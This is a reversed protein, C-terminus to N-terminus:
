LDIEVYHTDSLQEPIGNVRIVLPAIYQVTFETRYGPVDLRIAAQRLCMMPYLLFGQNTRQPSTCVPDSAFGAPPFPTVVVDSSLKVFRFLVGTVGRLVPRHLVVDYVELTENSNNSMSFETASNWHEFFGTDATPLQTAKKSRTDVVWVGVVPNATASGAGTDGLAVNVVYYCSDPSYGGNSLDLGTAHDPLTAATETASLTHCTPESLPESSGACGGALLIFL